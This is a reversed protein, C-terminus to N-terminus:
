AFVTLIEDKSITHCGIKVYDKTIENIEFYDIKNNEIKSRLNDDNTELWEKYLSVFFLAKQLNVEANRTTQVKDDKIRLFDSELYLNWTNVRDIEFARWKPLTESFFKDRAIKPREREKIERTKELEVARDIKERIKAMTKEDPQTRLFEKQDKTLKCKFINSYLTCDNKYSEFRDLHYSALKSAKQAKDLHIRMREIFFPINEDMKYPDVNPVTFTYKTHIARYAENLHKTTTNSYNEYSILCVNVDSFIKAIPTSYSKLVTKYFSLSNSRGEDQSCQAWVHAVQSNSSFVTKMIVGKIQNFM